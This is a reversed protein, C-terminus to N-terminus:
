RRVLLAFRTMEQMGRKFGHSFTSLQRAARNDRRQFEYFDRLQAFGPIATRQFVNRHM